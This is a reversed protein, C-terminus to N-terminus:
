PTAPSEGNVKIFSKLTELSEPNMIKLTELLEPMNGTINKVFDKIVNGLNNSNKLELKHQLIALKCQKELFELETTPINNKITELLGTETILDFMESNNATLNVNTYQKVLCIDYTIKSILPKYQDENFSNQLVLEVFMAKEEIPLYQKIEIELEGFKITEITKLEPNKILGRLSTTSVKKSM